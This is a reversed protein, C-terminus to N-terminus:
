GDRAPLQAASLASQVFASKALSYRERSEPTAGDHARALRRKLDAYAAALAADARLRDRFVLHRREQEGGSVCLHVHHTCPWRHPRQFFPYFADFDGLPVHLYGLSALAAADDAHRDLAVVSVQIDIVPKAELGPVATSGVHEVRLARAGMVDRLRAAEAEFQVPWGADYPVIRIM